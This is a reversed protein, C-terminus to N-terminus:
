GFVTASVNLVFGPPRFSFPTTTPLPGCAVGKVTVTM